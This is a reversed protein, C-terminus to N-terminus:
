RHAEVRVTWAAREMAQEIRNVLGGGHMQACPDLRVYYFSFPKEIIWFPLSYDNWGELFMKYTKSRVEIPPM